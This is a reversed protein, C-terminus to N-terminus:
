RREPSARGFAAAHDKSPATGAVTTPANSERTMPPEARLRMPAATETITNDTM